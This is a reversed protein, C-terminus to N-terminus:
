LSHPLPSCTQRAFHEFSNRTCQTRTYLMIFWKYCILNDNFITSKCYIASILLKRTKVFDKYKLSILSSTNSLHIYVLGDGCGSRRTLVDPSTLSLSKRRQCTLSETFLHIWCWLLMVINNSTGLRSQILVAILGSIGLRNFCCRIVFLCVSINSQIEHTM